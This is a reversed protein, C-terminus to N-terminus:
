NQTLAPLPRFLQQRTAAQTCLRSGGAALWQNLTDSTSLGQSADQWIGTGWRYYNQSEDVWQDRPTMLVRPGGNYCVLALGVDPSGDTVGDFNPDTSFRLCESLINLGIRANDMPDLQNLGAEQFNAPMVQFLGQAGANSAVYPDGCSEIQIVTAVLNPNLGYQQAWQFIAPEWYDVSPSFLKALDRDTNYLGDYRGTPASVRSGDVGVWDALTNGAIQIVLFYLALGIVFLAPLVTIWRRSQSPSAKKVSKKKGGKQTGKGSTKKKATPPPNRNTTRGM